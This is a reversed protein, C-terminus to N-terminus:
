VLRPNFMGSAYSPQHPEPYPRCRASDLKGTFHQKVGDANGIYGQSTTRGGVGASIEEGFPLYDHRTM